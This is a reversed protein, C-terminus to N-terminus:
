CKSDYVTSIWSFNHINFYVPFVYDTLLLKGSYLAICQVAQATTATFSSHTFTLQNNTYHCYMLISVTSSSSISKPMRFSLERISSDWSSLFSSLDSFLLRLAVKIVCFPLNSKQWVLWTNSCFTLRIDLHNSRVWTPYLLFTIAM